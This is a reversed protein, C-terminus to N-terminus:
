VHEVGQNKTPFAAARPVESVAPPLCYKIWLAVAQKANEVSISPLKTYLSSELQALQNLSEHDIKKAHKARDQLFQQWSEGQLSNINQAGFYHMAARRLVAHLNALAQTENSAVRHVARLAQRKFKHKRIHATFLWFSVALTIIALVIVIWWGWALPWISPTQGLSVDALNELAAELGPNAQANMGLMDVIHYSILSSM